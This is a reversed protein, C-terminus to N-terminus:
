LNELIDWITATPLNKMRYIIIIIIFLYINETAVYQLHHHRPLNSVYLDTVYRLINAIGNNTNEKSPLFM